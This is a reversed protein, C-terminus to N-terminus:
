RKYLRTGLLVYSRLLYFIECSKETFIYLLVCSEVVYRM